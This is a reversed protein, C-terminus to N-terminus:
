QTGAATSQRPPPRPIPPPPPLPPLQSLSKADLPPLATPPPVSPTTPAAASAALDHFRRLDATSLSIPQPLGSPPPDKEHAARRQQAIASAAAQMATDLTPASLELSLSSDEGRAKILYPGYLEDDAGESNIALRTLANRGDRDDLVSVSSGNEPLFRDLNASDRVGDVTTQSADEPNFRYTLSHEEATRAVPASEDSTTGMICDVQVQVDFFAVKGAHQGIDYLLDLLRPSAGSDDQPCFTYWGTIVPMTADPMQVSSPVTDGGWERLQDIFPHWGGVVTVITGFIMFLVLPGYNALRAGWTPQKEKKERAEEEVRKAADVKAESQFHDRKLLRDVRRRDAPTGGDLVSSVRAYCTFDAIARKLVRATIENPDDFVDWVILKEQRRGLESEYPYLFVAIAGTSGQSLVIAAGREIALASGGPVTGVPHQGFFLQISRNPRDQSVYLREHHSATEAQEATTQFQREVREVVVAQWNIFKYRRLDATRRPFLQM